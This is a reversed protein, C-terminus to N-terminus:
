LGNWSLDKLENIKIYAKKNVVIIGFTTICILLIAFVLLIIETKNYNQALWGLLSIDIATLIGFIV